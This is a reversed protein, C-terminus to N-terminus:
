LDLPQHREVTDTFKKSSQTFNRYTQRPEEAFTHIFPDNTDEILIATGGKSTAARTNGYAGINIRGGNPEPELSYDSNPDGSDICSSHPQLHYDAEVWTANPDHPGTQANPNNPDTWHGLKVFCPNEVINGLGASINQDNPDADQICSYTVASVSGYIQASNAVEGSDQNDWFICNTLTPNCNFSSNDNYIGGGTKASNGSLTCNTLKPSNNNFVAGGNNNTSNGSFICNTLVPSGERNYMGGGDSSASNNSFTCNTLTPSNSGNFMGGGRCNTTNGKFKCGVLTAGGYLQFLGGGNSNAKNDNFACNTLTVIGSENFIGGGNGDASNRSFICNILTPNSNQNNIGAGGETTANKSFLCYKVTPNSGERNHIGGGYKARNGKFTSNIITPNSNSNNIGGGGYPSLNENFTCNTLTPKSNENSMGGGNYQSANNSIICNAVTPSSDKCYIGGGNTSNGNVISLGSLISNADEGSHFYFGRGENECNIITSAVVYQQNPNTSRVTIAKGKFDIDRNGIGTHAGPSLVVVDGPYAADIALQITPYISPVLRQNNYEDAGIDVRDNIVRPEGDIDTEGGTAVYNVDGVNICPSTPPLHYNNNTPDIFQPDKSINGSVGLTDKLGQICCYNVAPTSSSTDIQASEANSSDDNNLWLICNTMTANSNEHNSIGGGCQEASNGIFNCCTLIPSSEYNRIGGGYGATSNGTFICSTLTPKSGNNNMGGGDSSASNKSFTCSILKPNSNYNRMGGGYKASNESFTCYSLEPNSNLYNAMGGSYQASNRSFTCRTLTPNSENKCYIGGGNLATNESFTCNTFKPSSTSNYIGGGADGATNGKFICDVLTPNSQDNYMGGGNGNASNETITCNILTPSGRYNYIGGGNSNANGGRIIFGDLVATKNTGMGTVVNYSNDNNNAFNPEDDGNLDGSLITKYNNINRANSDFETSGAYGGKITVGNILQFTAGRDEPTTEKGQDPKYIGNAVLIDDDSSAANLADQLSNYANFWNSGDNKGTANADVFIQRAFSTETVILSLFVSIVLLTRRNTRGGM